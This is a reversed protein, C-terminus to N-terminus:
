ALTPNSGYDGRGKKLREDLYLQLIQESISVCWGCVGWVCVCVGHICVFRYSYRSWSRLQSTSSSWWVGLTAPVDSSWQPVDARSAIQFLFRSFIETPIMLQVASSSTVPAEAVPSRVSRAVARERWSRLYWPSVVMGYLSLYHKIFKNKNIISLMKLSKGCSFV